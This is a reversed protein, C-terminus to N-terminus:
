KKVEGDWTCVCFGDHDEESEHICTHTKNDWRYGTCESLNADTGCLTVFERCDHEFM